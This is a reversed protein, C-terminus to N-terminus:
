KKLLGEVKAKIGKVDETLIKSDLFDGLDQMNWHEYTYERLWDPIADEEAMVIIKDADKLVEPSVQACVHNSIDIGYKKVENILNVFDPFSSIKKGARDEKDVWVGYSEAFSDDTKLLNYFAEAVPSRHM